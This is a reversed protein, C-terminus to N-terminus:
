LGSHSKSHIIMNGDKRKKHVRQLHRSLSHVASNCKPMPCKVRNEDAPGGGRGFGDERSEDFSRKKAVEKDMGHMKVYHRPLNYVLTQASCESCKRKRHGQISLSMSIIYKNLSAYSLTKNKHKCPHKKNWNKLKNTIILWLVQLFVANCNSCM